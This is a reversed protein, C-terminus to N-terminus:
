DWDSRFIKNANRFSTCTLLISIQIAYITNIKRM